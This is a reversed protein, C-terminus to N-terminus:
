KGTGQNAWSPQSQKGNMSVLRRQGAGSANMIFIKAVGQERTSTFALMSGDPSWSPDENDGSDSTLQVPDRAANIDIININMHGDVLSVYAIKNGDPSWAPSTNNMGIFTLRRINGSEIDKIYIQATGSRRSTFAIKKGDPSFSPSVDINWSNTLRKLVKGKISLLYIETDGSFSLSAALQAQGPMWAPSINMGKKNVIVGQKTEMNKIYLDPKGGAYSVYALWKGDSSLAPSLSLNNHFTLQRINQGDFDCTFIEKNGNATSVFILETNFVGRKGTLVYFVESCFLHIMQRIQSDSGSYVKGVLMDSKFTDFCRLEMKIIGNNESIGATILFEAAIGTWDKFNIDSRRIGTKSPDALYTLPNMVRLYGTFNLAKIMISKAKEATIAEKAHGNMVKFAPVAVPITKHAKDILIYQIKQGYASTCCAIM